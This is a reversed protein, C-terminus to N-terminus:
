HHHHHGGYGYRHPDRAAREAAAIREEIAEKDFGEDYLKRKQEQSLIEFAEGVLKFLKEHHAKDTADQHRDPHHEKSRQYYATKIEKETSIKRCGLIAYYDPRKFKRAEFQATEYAHRLRIDNSGWRELIPELESLADDFRNLGRLAAAKIIHADICDDKIYISTACDRLATIFDNLRLLCNAREALIIARLPSSTALQNLTPLVVKDEETHKAISEITFSDIIKTYIEAAKSFERTKTLVRAEDHLAKTDKAFSLAMKVPRNDPDLRLAERLLKCGAEFERDGADQLILAVGRVACALARFEGADHRRLAQLTLRLGREIRGLGIEALAAGLLIIIAGCYKLSKTFHTAAIAFENKHLCTFGQKVAHQIGQIQLQMENTSETCAALARDFQSLELHAKSKRKIASSLMPDVALAHDCDDICAQYQEEQFWCAARNAWLKASDPSLVLAKSYLARAAQYSASAYKSDAQTKLAAATAQAKEPNTSTNIEDDDERGGDTLHEQSNTLHSQLESYDGEWKCGQSKLPCSCQVKGLIRAALPNGDKLSKVDKRVNGENLVSM